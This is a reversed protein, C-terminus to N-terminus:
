RDVLLAMEEENVRELLERDVDRVLAKTQRMANPPFQAAETALNLVTEHFTDSPILRSGSLTPYILVQGVDIGFPSLHNQVTTSASCM